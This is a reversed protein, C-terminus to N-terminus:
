HGVQSHNAFRIYVFLLDKAESLIVLRLVSHQSGIAAKVGRVQV